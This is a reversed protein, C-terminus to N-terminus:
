EMVKRAHTHQVPRNNQGVLAVFKDVQTKSITLPEKIVLWRVGESCPPTTLSGSYRFYNRNKPLLDEGNIWTNESVMEKNVEQPLNQWLFDIVPNAAGEEFMVGVVALNGDKDKHVFHGELAYSQSNIEHESPSHFHFQLLDFRIDDVTISSGPAYNIQITHGNNLIKLPSAEYSFAIADLKAPITGSINVPSQTKGAGCIFYDEKLSGWHAPGTDGSYGWHGGKHKEEEHAPESAFAVGSSLAAASILVSLTKM